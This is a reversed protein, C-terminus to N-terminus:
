IKFIDILIFVKSNPLPFKLSDYGLLHVIEENLMKEIERRNAPISENEIIDGYIKNNIMVPRPLNKQVSLSRFIFINYYINLYM